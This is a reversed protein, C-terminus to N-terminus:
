TVTNVSPVSLLVNVMPSVTSLLSLCFFTSMLYGHLCCPCVSSRSWLHCHQCCPCVSSRQGYTVTNVAPVSLLVNVMPSLTSLLSLCFFTSWLHCHQCCPCVSSHQGYTVTNVAPVFLLVTVMPSLTSLLSLCFFTSWLHCHQSILSLCSYVIAQGSSVTHVTNTQFHWSTPRCCDM